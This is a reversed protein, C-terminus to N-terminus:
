PRLIEEVARYASEMAGQVTGAHGNYNTAEGAFFVKGNVPDALAQRQGTSEPNPVSFLGRIYPDETWNKVLYKGTYGANSGPYLQNLETVLRGAIEVPSLGNLQTAPTGAVVASILHRGVSKEPPVIRYEPAVSGGYINGTDAQWFAESYQLLISYGVGMGIQQIATTKTSPLGPTFVLPGSKLVGLPITVLVRDAQYTSNDETTVTIQAGTYDVRSVPKNFIIKDMAKDFATEFVNWLTYENLLYEDNGSSFETAMEKMALMGLGANDAGYKNGIMGEAIPMFRNELPFDKLYQEVTMNTGPYSAFSDIIQFLTEGEGALDVSERLYTRNRLQGDLLYRGTGTSRRLKGPFTHEALDYFVSRKGRLYSAGPEVPIGFSTTDTVIRGGANATAELITIDIGYKLLLQAAYVGAAGAGIVIVKGKFHDEGILSEKKCSVLMSPMVMGAPVGLMLQRLLTRRNM